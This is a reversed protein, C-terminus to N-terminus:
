CISVFPPFTCSSTDNCESHRALSEDMMRDFITRAEVFSENMWVLDAAYLSIFRNTGYSRM